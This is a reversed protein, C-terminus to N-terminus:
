MAGTYEKGFQGKYKEKFLNFDKAKLNELEGSEDLQNWTKKALDDSAAGAALESAISKYVPMTDVVAKLETPKDAFAAKLQPVTAATIKGAALATAM